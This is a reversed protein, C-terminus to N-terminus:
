EDDEWLDCSVDGDEIDACDAKKVEQVCEWGKSEDYTEGGLDALDLWLETAAAVDDQCDEQSGWWSDFRSPECEEYRDCWTEAYEVPFDDEEITCAVLLLTSLLVTLSRM